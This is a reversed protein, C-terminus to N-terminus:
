VYKELRNLLREQLSIAVTFERIQMDYLSIVSDFGEKTIQYPVKPIIKLLKEKEQRCFELGDKHVQLEKILFPVSAKQIDIGKDVFDRLMQEYYYIGEVFYESFAELAKKSNRSFAYYSRAVERVNKEHELKRKNENKIKKISELDSFLKSLTLKHEKLLNGIRNLSKTTETYSNIGSISDLRSDFRNIESYPKVVKKAYLLQEIEKKAKVDLINKKPITIKWRTPTKEFTHVDVNQWYTTNIEPLHAVLIIPINLNLWYHYHINSVYHTLSDKNINFNSKGAKIQVALLKGEPDGDVVKEVIADVGVDVDQRRFIWDFEDIIIRETQNVGLLETKSYRTM